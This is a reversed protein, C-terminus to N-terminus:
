GARKLGEYIEWHLEHCMQRGQKKDAFNIKLHTSEEWILMVETTGFDFVCQNFCIESMTNYIKSFERFQGIQQPSVESDVSQLIICDHVFNYLKRRIIIKKKYLNNKLMKFPIFLIMTVQLVSSSQIQTTMVSYPNIQIIFYLIPSKIIQVPSPKKRSGVSLQM